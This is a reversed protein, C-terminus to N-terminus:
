IATLIEPPTPHRGEKQKSFVMADNYFVEFDGTNGYEFDIEQIGKQKLYGELGEYRPMM